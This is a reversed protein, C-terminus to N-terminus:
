DWVFPVGCNQCSEPKGSIIKDCNPCKFKMPPLQEQKQLQSQSNQKKREEPFPFDQDWEFQANCSSCRKQGARVRAGCNPCLTTYEDYDEGEWAFISKCKPCSPSGKQVKQGCNPCEAIQDPSSQNSDFPNESFRSDETNDIASDTKEAMASKNEESAPTQTIVLFDGDIKFEGLNAGQEMLLDFLAERSMKFASMLDGISLKNSIRFFRKLKEIVAKESTENQKDPNIVKPEISRLKDKGM